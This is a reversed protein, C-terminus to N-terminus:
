LCDADEEGEEGGWCAGSGSRAGGSAEHSRSASLRGRVRDRSAWADRRLKSDHEGEPGEGGEGRRSQAGAATGAERHSAEALRRRSADGGGRGPTEGRAEM